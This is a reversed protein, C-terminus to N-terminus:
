SHHCNFEQWWFAKGRPTSLHQITIGSSILLTLLHEPIWEDSGPPSTRKINTRKLSPRKLGSHRTTIRQKWVRYTWLVDSTKLLYTPFDLGHSGSRSNQYRYILKSTSLKSTEHFRIFKVKSNHRMKILTCARTAVGTKLCIIEFQQDNSYLCQEPILIHQRM